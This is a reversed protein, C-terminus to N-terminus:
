LSVVLTPRNNEDYKVFCNEVVELQPVPQVFSLSWTSRFVNVTQVGGQQLKQLPINWHKGALVRTNRTCTQHPMTYSFRVHPPAKTNRKGIRLMKQNSRADSCFMANGIANYKGEHPQGESKLDVQGLLEQRKGIKKRFVKITAQFHHHCTLQLILEVCALRQGKILLKSGSLLKRAALPKGCETITTTADNTNQGPVMGALCITVIVAVLYVNNRM